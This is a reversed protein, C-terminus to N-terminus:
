LPPLPRKCLPCITKIALWQALCKTHFLHHCPSLAYARRSGLSNIGLGTLLAESAGLTSSPSTSVEEMCISCTTELSSPNEPDSPPLPPHYDYSEVPKYSRPLFFAPGFREQGFLVAIQFVQWLVTAWIGKSPEVFLVNDPCAFIYLPIAFRGLTTGIIFGHNLAGSTGRRANRYIQPIWFSYMTFLVFPMFMPQLAFQFYILLAMGALFFKLIPSDNLTQKIRDWASLSPEMQTSESANQVTQTASESPRTATPPRPPPSPEREPAQIRHLLVCYRPAFLVASCLALFGPLLLPISARNDTVIGVIVHSSFIWSDLIAMMVISWLSVKALTSPTRSSEMQRILLMLTILQAITAYAAYNGSKRWFDEIGLGKGGELGFAWGCQDAIIVGGLGIGEWYRPPRPLSLRLGTPNQLEDEYLEIESKTGHISFPPLTFHIYLPCSTQTQEEPRVDSFLLDEQKSKWDKELEGLVIWKSVNGGDGGDNLMKGEWLSPIHRIDVNKGEPLGYLGYTGNPLYHLGYFNYELTNKGATLTASGKIWTWDENNWTPNLSTLNLTSSLTKERINMDWRTTHEWDWSGRLELALTENWETNERRLNRRSMKQSVEEPKGMRPIKISPVFRKVIRRSIEKWTGEPIEDEEPLSPPSNPQSGYEPDTDETLIDDVSPYHPGSNVKGSGGEFDVDSSDGSHQTNEETIEEFIDDSPPFHDTQLPRGVYQSTSTALNEDHPPDLTNLSPHHSLFHPIEVGNFFESVQNEETFTIPHLQASRYFGTINRWHGEDGGWPHIYKNPLLVEPRIILPSPETWNGITGNLLGQYEEYSTRALDLQTVRHVFEGNPGLVVEQEPANGGSMFFFFATLFLMSGLSPRPPPPALDATNQVSPSPQSPAPTVDPEPPSSSM